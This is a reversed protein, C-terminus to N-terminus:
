METISLLGDDFEKKYKEFLETTMDMIVVVGKHKNLLFVLYVTHDGIWDKYIGIFGMANKFKMKPFGLTYKFKPDANGNEWDFMGITKAPFLGRRSVSYTVVDLSVTDTVTEVMFAINPIIERGASDIIPERKYVYIRWGNTDKIENMFWKSNPKEFLLGAAKITDKQGSRFKSGDIVKLPAGITDILKEDNKQALIIHGFDYKLTSILLGTTDYSKWVGNKRDGKNTGAEKLKGNEYYIIVAGNATGNVFRDKEKLKGNTFYEKQIGNLKGNKYHYKQFLVGNTDYKKESGNKVGNSYTAKEKLKGNEYYDERVGNIKENAWRANHQLNAGEYNWTMIRNIKGRKFRYESQLEGNFYYDRGIGFGKGHKYVILRFYIADGSIHSKWKADFYEVWKGEKKGNILLNKAEAKNTFGSDPYEQGTATLTFSLSLIIILFPKM